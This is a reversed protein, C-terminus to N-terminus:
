VIFSAPLMNIQIYVANATNLYGELTRNHQKLLGSLPVELRSLLEIRKKPCFVMNASVRLGCTKRDIDLSWSPSQFAMCVGIASNYASGLGSPVQPQTKSSDGSFVVAM